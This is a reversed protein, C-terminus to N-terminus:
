RWFCKLWDGITIGNCKAPSWEQKQCIGDDYEKCTLKGVVAGVNTDAWASTETYTCTDGFVPM